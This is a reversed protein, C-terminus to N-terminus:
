DNEEEQEDSEGEVEEKSDIYKLSSGRSLGADGSILSEPTGNEQSCKGPIGLFCFELFFCSEDMFSNGNGGGVVVM